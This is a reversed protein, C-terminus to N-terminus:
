GRGCVPILAGTIASADESALFLIVKAIEVPKVWRTFDSNPMEARNQPTDIIGPLIANVTLNRNKLEQALSETFKHVGSKSAAYAGMGETTPRAAAAAGVNIIRGNEAELLAPTRGEHGSRLDQPEDSVDCGV